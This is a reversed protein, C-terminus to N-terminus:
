TKWGKLTWLASGMLVTTCCMIKKVVNLVRDLCECLGRFYVEVSGGNKGELVWKNLGGAM